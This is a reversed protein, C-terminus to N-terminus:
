KPAALGGLGADIDVATCALQNAANIPIFSGNLAEAPGFFLLEQHHSKITCDSTVIIELPVESLKGKTISCLFIADGSTPPDGAQNEINNATRIL